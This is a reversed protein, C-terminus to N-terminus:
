SGPNIEVARLFKEASTGKTAKEGGTVSAQILTRNVIAIRTRVQNSGYQVIVEFGDIKADGTATLRIPEKAVVKGGNKSLGDMASALLKAPDADKVAEPYTTEAIAYILEKTEVSVTTVAITGANSEHKRTVVRPKETFVATFHVKDSQFAHTFEPEKRSRSQGHVSSVVLCAMGLIAFVRRTM